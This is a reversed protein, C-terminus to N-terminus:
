VFDLLNLREMMMFLYWLRLNRSIAVLFYYARNRYSVDPMCLIPLVIGYVLFSLYESYLFALRDQSVFWCVAWHGAILSCLTLEAPEFYSNMFAM